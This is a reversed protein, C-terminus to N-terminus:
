IIVGGGVLMDKQYFVASQGPTVARVPDELVIELSDGKCELNKVPVPHSNYRIQISIKDDEEPIVDIWNIKNIKFNSVLLDDPNDTVVLENRTVDLKVVFLPSIWPTNLGKRQGITYLPLGRHKGIIKGDSLVINGVNFDIHKKLYEEYHDKIFCIEQSDTKEHVPLEFEAAIKRVEPKTLHSIPFLTTSLQKQNLAWLYYSQDKRADAATHIQFHGYEEILKVYHGTAVKEADLELVQEHFVGWKITPNCLTCPNPTRGNTYEAIFNQEVIRYFDDKIELVHHEIGLKDCVKAADVVAQNIGEDEAFGYRENDFHRMTVGFVEHGERVLLAAAVSSDVGGSM